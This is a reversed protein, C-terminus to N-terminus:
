WKPRILAKRLTGTSSTVSSSRAAYERPRGQAGFVFATTRAHMDTNKRHATSLSCRVFFGAAFSM